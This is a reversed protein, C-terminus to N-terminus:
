YLELLSSEPFIELTAKMRVAVHEKSLQRAEESRYVPPPALAVCRVRTWEPVPTKHRRTLIKLAMLVATGAGLSHGTLVLKLGLM